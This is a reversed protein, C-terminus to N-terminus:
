ATLDIVGGLVALTIGFFRRLGRRRHIGLRYRYASTGPKIRVYGLGTREPDYVATFRLTYRGPALDAHCPTVCLARGAPTPGYGDVIEVEARHGEVDLLVRGQGPAPPAEVVIPPPVQRPARPPPLRRVGCAAVLTALALVLPRM